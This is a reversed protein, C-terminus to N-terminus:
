RDIARTMWRAEAGYSALTAQLADSGREAVFGLRQWYTAAGEVAILEARRLGNQVARDIAGAVLREGIALGRGAPAVALDHIFLVEDPVDPALLTGVPPPSGRAWGHALIYGLLTEGRTAALCYGNTREIRSRFARETEILFAPYIASQIALAAPLDRTSLAHISIAPQDCTM